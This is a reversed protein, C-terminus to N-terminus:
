FRPAFPLRIHSCGAGEQDEANRCDNCDALKTRGTTWRPPGVRNRWRGRWSRCRGCWVRRGFLNRAARQRECPLLNRVAETGGVPEGAIMRGHGVDDRVALARIRTGAAKTVIRVAFA